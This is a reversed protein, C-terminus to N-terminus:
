ISRDGGNDFLPGMRGPVRNNIKQEDNSQKEPARKQGRGWQCCSQISGSTVLEHRHGDNSSKSPRVKKEEGEEKEGGGGGIGLWM